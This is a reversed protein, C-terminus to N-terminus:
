ILRPFRPPLTNELLYQTKLTQSNYVHIHLREMFRARVNTPVVYLQGHSFCGIMVDMDDVDLM